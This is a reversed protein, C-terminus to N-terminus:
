YYIFIYLLYYYIYRVRDCISFEQNGSRAKHASFCDESKCLRDCEPCRKPEDPNCVSRLCINCKDPCYHDELRDYARECTECYFHSGHFGKLSKIVDYHKNVMCGYILGNDEIEARIRCRFISSIQLPINFFYM